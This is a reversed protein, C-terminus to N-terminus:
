LILRQLAPLLPDLRDGFGFAFMVLVILCEPLLSRLKRTIPWFAPTTAQHVVELRQAHDHAGGHAENRVNEIPHLQLCWAQDQGFRRHIREEEAISMRFESGFDDQPMELRGRM